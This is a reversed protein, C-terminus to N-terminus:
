WATWGGDVPLNAGNIYSADDSLLFHVASAVEEPQGIRNLPVKRCLEQYFGPNDQIINEPPFPGPSVTNSRIGRQQAHCAFYRSMQILAAKSMGYFPPNNMGSDSYISPDPSVTGYMSAINIISSMKGDDIKKSLLPLFQQSLYFTASVNVDFCKQFNEVTAEDISGSLPAFANNVLGDLRGHVEQVQQVAHNVAGQDSIDFDLVLIDEGMGNALNQLKSKDRGNICLVAGAKYLRKSIATGLHGAAGTVLIVKEKIDFFSNKM